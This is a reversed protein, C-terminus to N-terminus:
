EDLVPLVAGPKGIREVGGATRADQYVPPWEEDASLRDDRRNLEANLTGFNCPNHVRAQEAIWGREPPTGGGTSRLSTIVSLVSIGVDDAEIKRGIGAESGPRLILARFKM